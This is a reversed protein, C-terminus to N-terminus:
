LLTAVRLDLIEDQEPRFTIRKVVQRDDDIVDFHSYGMDDAPLVVQCVCVLLHQQILRQTRLHGGKCVQWENERWVFSLERLSFVTFNNGKCCIAIATENRS